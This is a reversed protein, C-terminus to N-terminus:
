PTARADPGVVRMCNVQSEMGNASVQRGDV